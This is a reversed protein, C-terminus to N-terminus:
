HILHLQRGNSVSIPSHMTMEALPAQLGRKLFLSLIKSPPIHMNLGVRMTQLEHASKQPHPATLAYRTLCHSIVVVLVVSGIVIVIRSLNETLFAAVILSPKQISARSESGFATAGWATPESFQAANITGPTRLLAVKSAVIDQCSPQDTLSKM